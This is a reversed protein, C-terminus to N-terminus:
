SKYTIPIGIFISNDDCSYDLIKGAEEFNKAELQYDRVIKINLHKDRKAQFVKIYREM